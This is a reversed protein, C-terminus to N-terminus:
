SLMRSCYHSWSLMVCVFLRVELNSFKFGASLYTTLGVSHAEHVLELIEPFPVQETLPISPYEDGAGDFTVKDFGGLAALQIGRRLINFPKKLKTVRHNGNDDLDDNADDIIYGDVPNTNFAASLYQLRSRATTSLASMYALMQKTTLGDMSIKCEAAGAAFFAALAATTTHIATRFDNKFSRSTSSYPFRGIYLTMPAHTGVHLRVCGFNIISPMRYSEVERRPLGRPRELDTNETLKQVYSPYAFLVYM